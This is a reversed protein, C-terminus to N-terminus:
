YLSFAASDLLRVCLWRAAAEPTACGPAGAALCATMDARLSALEAEDAPHDLLRLVLHSAARDLNAPSSDNPDFSSPLVASGYACLTQALDHQAYTIGISSVSPRRTDANCGGLQVAASYYSFEGFGKTELPSPVKKVLSRDALPLSGQDEVGLIGGGIFRYDCWGLPANSTALAASDLWPESALLKTPGMTWLPADLKEPAPEQPAVYLLSTVILRQIKPLSDGRRLEEAVVSRIAPLDFDPQRVGEKWWGLLRKLERDAAAEWFDPRAALAEGLQAFAAARAPTPPPLMALAPGPKWTTLTIIDLSRDACEPRVAGDPCKTDHMGPSLVIGGTRSWNKENTVDAPVACETGFDIPKGLGSSRCGLPSLTCQCTNAAWEPPTYGGSSACLDIAAQPSVQSAEFWLHGDCFERRAWIAELPRFSAIEDPRAQRGLFISYIFAPWDDAQHVTYFAPHMVARGVFSAYGLPNPGYMRRVLEDLDYTDGYWNRFAVDYGFTEGWYRAQAVAYDPLSMLADANEAFSRKSAASLEEPTPARGILDISM